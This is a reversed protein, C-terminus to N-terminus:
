IDCPPTQPKRNLTTFKLPSVRAVWRLSHSLAVWGVDAVWGSGRGVGVGLALGVDPYTDGCLWSWSNHSRSRDPEKETGLFSQAAFGDADEMARDGTTSGLVSRTVSLPFKAAITLGWLSRPSVVCLPPTPLYLPPGASPSAWHIQSPARLPRAMSFLEVSGEWSRGTTTWPNRIGLPDEGGCTCM